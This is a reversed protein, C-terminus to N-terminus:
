VKERILNGLRKRNIELIKKSFELEINENYFEKPIKSFIDDIKIFDVSLIKEIWFKVAANDFKQCVQITELTSLKKNNEYFPTKARNCFAEITFRSDKTKFRKKITEINERCGLGAAHDFTPALSIKGEHASLVIGWNEHHRDQNATFADFILYGIFSFLASDDFVKLSNIVDLVTSIKYEKVKYFNEKPYSSDFKLLLENGHILREGDKLFIPSLVGYRGMYQAFEYKAANIGLLKGIEYIAKEALNERTNERGIKFLLKKGEKYVWFKEKTGLQEIEYQNQVEFIKYHM